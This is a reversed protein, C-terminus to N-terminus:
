FVCQELYRILEIVNDYVKFKDNFASNYIDLYKEVFKLSINLEELLQKIYIIKNFKNSNNNSAKINKNILQYSERIIDITINFDDSLENFLQNLGHENCLDYNYLTNDFDFIVTNIM